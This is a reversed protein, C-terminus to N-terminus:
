SGRGRPPAERASWSTMLRQFRPEQRLPDFKPEKLHMRLHPRPVRSRELFAIARETEGAGVLLSAWAAAQHVGAESSDPEDLRLRAVRARAGATDGGRLDLAALVDEGVLPDSAPRLRVATEADGRAGATDGMALRLAARETYAQYFGPNVAAASDLWRRSDPYRRRAMEIWGLHV